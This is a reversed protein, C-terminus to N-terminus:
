PNPRFVLTMRPPVRGDNDPPLEATRLIARLVADDWEKNGSSKVLKPESIIGNADVRVAVEASPNGEVQGSFIIQDHILKRVRAAYGASPAASQAASGTGGTGSGTTNGTGAQGMMRRLNEERQKALREDEAKAQAAAKREAEDRKTKEEKARDLQAKEEKLKDDKRKDEKRKDENRKDEDAKKADAERKRAADAEAKAKAKETAAKEAELAKRQAELKRAQETAIDADRTVPPPPPAPQPPAEVKPTPVPAPPPAVPPTPTTAPLPAAAQPVAAWLEASFVEPPRTRWQVTSTLALLLAGHALLALVAGWGMGGPARPLLADHAFHNALAQSVAQVM